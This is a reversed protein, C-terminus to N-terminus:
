PKVEPLPLYHCPDYYGVHPFDPCAWCEKRVLWVLVMWTETSPMYALIRTGDRPAEAIPRPTTLRALEARLEKIQAIAYMVEAHLKKAEQEAKHARKNQGAADKRAKDLEYAAHGASDMRDLRRMKATCNPCIAPQALEARAAEERKRQQEALVRACADLDLSFSTEVQDAGNEWQAWAKRPDEAESRPESESM